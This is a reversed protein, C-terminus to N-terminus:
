RELDRFVEGADALKVVTWPFLGTRPPRRDRYYRAAVLRLGTRILDSTALGDKRAWALAAVDERDLRVSTVFKRAM